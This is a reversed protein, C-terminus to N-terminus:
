ALAAEDLVGGAGGADIVRHGSAVAAGVFADAFAQASGSRQSMVLAVEYGSAALPLFLWAGLLLRYLPACLRSM